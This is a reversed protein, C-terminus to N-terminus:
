KVEISGKMFPHISCHYTLTGGTAFTHEYTQGAGLAQSTFSNDDATVTHDTSDDFKWTVSTGPSVTLTAPNFAFNDIEVTSSGAASAPGASAAGASASAPPPTATASPTASSSPCGSIAGAVVLLSAAVLPHRRYTFSATTGKM